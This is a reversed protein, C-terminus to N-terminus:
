ANLIASFISLFGAYYLFSLLPCGGHLFLLYSHPLLWSGLAPGAKPPLAQIHLACPYEKAPTVLIAPSNPISVTFISYYAAHCLLALHQHM